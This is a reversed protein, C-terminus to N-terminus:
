FEIKEDRAIPMYTFPSYETRKPAFGIKIPKGDHEFYLIYNSFSKSNKEFKKLTYTGEGFRQRLFNNLSGKFDGILEEGEQTLILQVKAADKEAKSQRVSADTFDQIQQANYRTTTEQATTKTTTPSTTTAQTTAMTTEEATTKKNRAAGNLTFAIILCVVVACGILAVIYWKSKTKEGFKRM